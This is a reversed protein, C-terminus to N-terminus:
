YIQAGSTATSLTIETGAEVTGAQPAAQPAAVATEGSGGEDVKYLTFQSPYGNPSGTVTTNKYGRFKNQSSRNSALKVTDEGTGSFTFKGDAFSWEWAYEENKIGNNNGGEPAIYNGDSLQIKASQGDVTVTCVTEAGADTLGGASETVQVASVWTGDMPGLAYGTDVAMVYQGSTFQAADTIKTYTSGSAFVSAPIVSIMMLAAMLASLIRGRHKKTKM